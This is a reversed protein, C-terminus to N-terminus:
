DRGAFTLRRHRQMWLLMLAAVVFPAASRFPAVPGALTAMSEIVGILLGGALTALLSDLRGIIAAAIAPIVLFTLVTPNLRVLDAFLM